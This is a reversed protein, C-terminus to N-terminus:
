SQAGGCGRGRVAVAAGRGHVAAVAAGSVRVAAATGLWTVHAAAFADLAPCSWAVQLRRARAVRWEIVVRV